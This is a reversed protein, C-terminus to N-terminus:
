HNESPLDDTPREFEIRFPQYGRGRYFRAADENDAMAELAIRDVGAEELFDEAAELLRSGVGEGRWEPEVYLNQVIGRESSSALAGREIEFAVFGIVSGDSRAVYLTENVIHTSLTTRMLTRNEESLLHSGHRHQETALAVWQDTVRDIDEMTAPEVQM